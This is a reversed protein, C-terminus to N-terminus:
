IEKSFGFGLSEVRVRSQCFSRVNYAKNTGNLKLKRMKLTFIKVNYIYIYVRMYLKIIIFVLRVNRM